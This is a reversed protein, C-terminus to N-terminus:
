GRIPVVGGAASPSMRASGEGPMVLAPLTFYFTTGKGPMSEVWLRGGQAEVLAKCIALGLGTGGSKGSAGQEVRYFKDFLQSLHEPAIGKGHDEVSLVVESGGSYDGKIYVVNSGSYKAANQLLNLLVQEVRRPDAEVVPLPDALECEFKIEPYHRAVRDAVKRCFRSLLVPEPTIPMRGAEIRSMELINEVLDTLKDSEDAIISLFERQTEDDWEQGKECAMLTHSYGKISALPTRLEHSVMSVFEDKLRNAERLATTEATEKILRTNEIAVALQDAVGMLIAADDEDLAGPEQGAVLLVGLVREGLSIVLVLFSRVGNKALSAVVPDDVKLTDPCLAIRGNGLDLLHRETTGDIGELLTKAGPDQSLARDLREGTREDLTCISSVSHPVIREIGRLATQFVEGLDLSSQNISRALENITMLRAAKRQTDTLLLANERSQRILRQSAGRVIAFLSVYLALFGVAIGTWLFLRTQQLSTMLEDVDYYGEFAGSAQEQGPLVLPTYVEMLQGFGREDVNETKTLPSIDGKTEGNFAGALEDSIPYTKGVLNAQDSYVVMGQRNWIKVRVLGAGGLYSFASEIARYNKDYAGKELIQKNIFPAIAPPMLHATIQMERDLEQSEFLSTLAWGLLVGFIVLLVLSLLSFQTLLSLRRMTPRTLHLRKM